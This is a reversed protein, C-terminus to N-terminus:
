RRANYDNALPNASFVTGYGACQIHVWTSGGATTVGYVQGAVGATPAGSAYLGDKINVFSAPQTETWTGGPQAPPILRYVSGSYDAGLNVTFGILSNDALVTVGGIPTAGDPTGQFAYITNFSWTGVSNGPPSLQFVTGCHDGGTPVYPAGVAAANFTQPNGYYPFRSQACTASNTGGFTTTGYLAGNSDAVLNSRPESGDTGGTFSWLTSQTWATQGVAPPTLMFVTGVNAVGGMKTTGYLAGQKDVYVAAAPAAGDLGGTFSWVITETWTTQGVAPPLLEFVTGKGNSGGWNTTGFLAGNPGLALDGVPTRGDTGSGFSWITQQTWASQGAAPPSLEYAVGGLSVGDMSTTGYLNGNADAVLGSVPVSGDAGGTFSYLTTLTAPRIGNAAPVLKFITGSNYQGGFPATGYLNGSADALLDSRPTTGDIGGKFSWIIPYGDNAAAAALPVFLVYGFACVRGFSKKL